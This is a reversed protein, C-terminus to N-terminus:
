PTDRRESQSSGTTHCRIRVDITGHGPIDYEGPIGSEFSFSEDLRHTAISMSMPVASQFVIMCALRFQHGNNWRIPLIGASGHGNYMTGQMVDDYMIRATTHFVSDLLSTKIYTMGPALFRTEKQPIHDHKIPLCRHM